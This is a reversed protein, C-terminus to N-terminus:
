NSPKNTNNNNNNVSDSYLDGLLPKALEVEEHNVIKLCTKILDYNISESVVSDQKYDPHKTIFDRMWTAMTQLQGSARQSILKM